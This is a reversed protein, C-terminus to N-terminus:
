NEKQEEKGGEKGWERGEEKRGKEEEEGGVGGEKSETKWLIMGVRDKNDKCPCNGREM